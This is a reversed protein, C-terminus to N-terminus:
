KESIRRGASCMHKWAIFINPLYSVAGDFIRVLFSNLFINFEPSFLSKTMHHSSFLTFKKPRFRSYFATKLM